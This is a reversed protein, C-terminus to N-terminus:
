PRVSPKGPGATATEVTPFPKGGNQWVIRMRDPAIWQSQERILRQEGEVMFLADFRERAKATRANQLELVAAIEGQREMRQQYAGALRFLSVGAVAVLGLKVLLGIVSCLLEQRENSLSILEGDTGFIALTPFRAVAASTESVPLPSAADSPTFPNSIESRFVAQTASAERHIAVVRGSRQRPNADRPQRGETNLSKGSQASQRGFPLFSLIRSNGRM